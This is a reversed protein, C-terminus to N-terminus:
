DLDFFRNYQIRSYNRSITSAFDLPSALDSQSQRFSLNPENDIWYITPELSSYLDSSENQSFNSTEESGVLDDEENRSRCLLGKWKTGNAKGM